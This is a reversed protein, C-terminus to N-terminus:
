INISYYIRFYYKNSHYANQISLVRENRIYTDPVNGATVYFSFKDFVYINPLTSTGHQQQQQGSNKEASYM